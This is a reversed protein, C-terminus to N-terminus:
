PFGHWSWVMQSTGDLIMRSLITSSVQWRSRWHLVEVEVELMEWHLVSGWASDGGSNTITKKLGLVASKGYLRYLRYIYIYLIYTDMYVIYIHVIYLYTYIFMSEDIAETKQSPDSEPYLFHSSGICSPIAVLQPTRPNRPCKSPVWGPETQFNGNSSRTSPIQRLSVMATALRPSQKPIISSSVHM